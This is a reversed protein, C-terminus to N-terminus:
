MKARGLTAARFQLRVTTIKDESMLLRAGAIPYKHRRLMGPIKGFQELSKPIIEVNPLACGHGRGGECSCTLDIGHQELLEVILSIGEKIRYVHALERDGILEEGCVNCKMM